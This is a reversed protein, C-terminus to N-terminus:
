THGLKDWLWFAMLNASQVVGYADLLWSPYPERLAAQGLSRKIRPPDFYLM